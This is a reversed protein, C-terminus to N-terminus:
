PRRSVKVSKLTCGGGGCANNAFYFRAYARTDACGKIKVVGVVKNFDPTMLGKEAFDDILGKPDKNLWSNFTDGGGGGSYAGRTDLDRGRDCNERPGPCVRTVERSRWKGKM